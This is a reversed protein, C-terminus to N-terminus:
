PRDALYRRIRQLLHDRKEVASRYLHETSTLFRDDSAHQDLSLILLQDAEAIRVANLRLQRDHTERAIEMLKEGESAEDKM